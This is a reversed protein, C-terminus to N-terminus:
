SRYPPRSTARDGPARRDCTRRRRADVRAGPRCQQDRRASQAARSGGDGHVRGEDPQRARCPRPQQQRCPSRDPRHRDPELSHRQDVGHHDAVSESRLHRFSSGILRSRRRGSGADLLAEFESRDSANVFRAIRGGVVSELPEGVLASFRANAYLIDGRGTLVVAGEQMEEVLRRYPEEASQLTYVQRGSAGEVVM